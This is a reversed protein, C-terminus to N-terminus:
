GKKRKIEKIIEKKTRNWVEEYYRTFANYENELEDFAEKSTDGMSANLEGAMAQIGKFRAENLRKFELLEQIERDKEELKLEFERVAESNNKRLSDLDEKLKDIKALANQKEITISVCEDSKKKLSDRLEVIEANKEKLKDEYERRVLDEALHIDKLKDEVDKLKSLLNEIDKTLSENEKKLGDNALIIKDLSDKLAISNEREGELLKIKDELLAIYSAPDNQYSDKLKEIRKSLDDIAKKKFDVELAKSSAEYEDMLSNKLLSVLLEFGIVPFALNSSLPVVNVIKENKYFSKDYNLLYEYLELSNSFNENMTLVNTKTINSSIVPERSVIQMLPTQLLVNVREKLEDMRKLKSAENELISDEVDLSKFTMRLSLTIEDGLIENKRSVNFIGNDSKISALIDDKVRTIFDSLTLLLLYIFKNEYVGYDTDKNVTYLKSPIIEEDKTYKEIYDSHKALHEVSNHSVRKIREIPLVEGEERIFQRNEFVAKEVYKMKSEAFIIWDDEIKIENKIRQFVDKENYRALDKILSDLEKMDKIENIYDSLKWYVRKM